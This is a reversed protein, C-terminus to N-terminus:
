APVPVCASPVLLLQAQVEAKGSGVTSFPILVYYLFSFGSLSKEAVKGRNVEPFATRMSSPPLLLEAQSHDSIGLQGHHDEELPLLTLILIGQQNTASMALFDKLCEYKGHQDKADGAPFLVDSEDGGVSSSDLNYVNWKTQTVVSSGM